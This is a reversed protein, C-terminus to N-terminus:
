SDTKAKSSKKATKKTSVKSASRIIEICNDIESDKLLRRFFPDTPTGNVDTPITIEAGANYYGIDKNVKIKISQYSM